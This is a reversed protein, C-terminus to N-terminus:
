ALRHAKPIRRGIGRGRWVSICGVERSGSHVFFDRHHTRRQWRVGEAGAQSMLHGTVILLKDAAETSGPVQGQAIARGSYGSSLLTQVCASPCRASARRTAAMWGRAVGAQRQEALADSGRALGGGGLGASHWPLRSPRRGRPCRCPSLLFLHHQPSLPPALLQHCVAGNSSCLPWQLFLFM